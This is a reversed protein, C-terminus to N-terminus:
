NCALELGIGPIGIHGIRSRCIRSLAIRASSSHKEYPKQFNAVPRGRQEKGSAAPTIHQEGGLLTKPM